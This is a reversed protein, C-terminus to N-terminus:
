AGVTLTIGTRIVTQFGPASAQAEYNGIPLEVITYRGQSDAPTQQVQGTAINKVQVSAKPIVAGSSDTVTGLIAGTSGQANLRGAMVFGFALLAGAACAFRVRGCSELTM